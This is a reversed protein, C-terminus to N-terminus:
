LSNKRNRWSLKVREPDLLLTRASMQLWQKAQTIKLVFFDPFFMGFSDCRYQVGACGRPLFVIKHNPIWDNPFRPQTKSPFIWSSNRNGRDHQKFLRKHKTLHKRFWPPAESRLSWHKYVSYGKTFSVNIHLYFTTHQLQISTIEQLTIAGKPIKLLVCSRILGEYDAQTSLFYWKFGTTM